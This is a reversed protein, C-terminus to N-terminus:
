QVVEEIALKLVQCTSELNTKQRKVEAITEDLHIQQQQLKAVGEDIVRDLDSQSVTTPAQRHRTPAHPTIDLDLPESQVSHRARRHPLIYGISQLHSLKDESTDPIHEVESEIGEMADPTNAITLRQTGAAQTPAALLCQLQETDSFEPYNHGFFPNNSGLAFGAM